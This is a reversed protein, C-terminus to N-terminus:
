SVVAPAAATIQAQAVGNITPTVKATFTGAAAYSHTANPVATTITNADGFDWLYSDTGTPNNTETLTWTVSLPHAGSLPSGALTASYAGSVVVAAPASVQAKVVADVTPTMKVTYSGAVAYSHNATPVTTNTDATGDGWHWLYSSAAEGPETATATVALPQNGVLPTAAITVTYSADELANNVAAPMEGAYILGYNAKVIDPQAQGYSVNPVYLNDYSAQDTPTWNSGASVPLGQAAMAAKIQVYTFPVPTAM